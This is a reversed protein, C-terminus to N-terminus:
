ARVPVPVPAGEETAPDWDDIETDAQIVDFIFQGSIPDFEANTVECAVDALSDRRPNQVRIFREGLGNLGFPGTRIQGSRVPNLRAMRRKALRRAQTFSPVWSLDLSQVQGGDGVIWPDCNQETYDNAPSTFTISLENVATSADQGRTWSFGEIHDSTIVFTPEVYRGAKIILRGLGTVSYFGDMADLIKQRIESRVTDSYYWGAVRYRKESGGAHLTVTGDCYDAEDTLADLVPAICRDWNRDWRFWELHVLNVVPNDSPQWTSEDDRRQSGSGGATSDARWDYMVPKCVFSETPRGNPFAARFFQSDTPSFHQVMASATGDGRCSTTYETTGFSASPGFFEVMRNYAIETALGRRMNVRCREDVYRGDNTTGTGGATNIVATVWGDDSGTGDFPDGNLSVRDDSIYCPNTDFEVRGDNLLYVAAFCNDAVKWYSYAGAVRSFGGVLIVCPPVAQKLPVQGSDAKPAKSRLLDEKVGELAVASALVVFAKFYDSFTNDENAM